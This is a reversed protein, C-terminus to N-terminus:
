DCVECRAQRSSAAHQGKGGRGRSTEKEVHGGDFAFIVVDLRLHLHARYCTTDLDGRRREHARGRERMKEGTSPTGLFFYLRRFGVRKALYPSSSRVGWAGEEEEEGEERSVVGFCSATSAGGGPDSCIRATSFSKRCDRFCVAWRSLSSDSRFGAWKRAPAM